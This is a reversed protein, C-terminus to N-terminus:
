AQGVRRGKVLRPPFSGYRAAWLGMLGIGFMPVLIAFAVATFPRISAAVLAVVLQVGWLGLMPKQVARPACGSLFFLGGMGIADTRSRGVAIGYAWLFTAVGVAFLGLSVVILPLVALGEGVAAGIVATIGFLATGAADIRILGAGTGAPAFAPRESELGVDPGLDGDPARRRRRATPDTARRDGPLGDGERRREAM